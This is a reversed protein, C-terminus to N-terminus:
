RVLRLTRPDFRQVEFVNAARRIVVVGRSFDVAVVELAEGANRAGAEQYRNLLITSVVGIVSNGGTARSEVEARTQSDLGDLMARDFASSSPTQASAPSALAALHLAVPAAIAIAFRGLIMM